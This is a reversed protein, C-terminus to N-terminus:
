PTTEAYLAKGTRPARVDVPNNVSTPKELPTRPMDQDIGGTYLQNLSFAELRDGM